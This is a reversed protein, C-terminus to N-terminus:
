PQRSFGFIFTYPLRSVGEIIRTEVSAFRSRLLKEYTPQDRVFRGRDSDLLWRAIRNQGPRYCGDLTFLTGTPSLARGITQLTELLVEDSLHHMVGNMMVLDASGFQRACDDDFLRCHFQGKAGFRKKAFEIYREDIDFGIYDVGTPLHETIFGPGCGIDIVRQGPRIDLFQRMAVVRANFFGFTTQFAQYIQPHELVDRIRKMGNGNSERHQVLEANM